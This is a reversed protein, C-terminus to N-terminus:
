KVFDPVGEMSKEVYDRVQQYLIAPTLEYFYCMVGFINLANSDNPNEQLTQYATLLIDVVQIGGHLAEVNYSGDGKIVDTPKQNKVSLEVCRQCM